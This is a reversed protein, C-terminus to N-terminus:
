HRAARRAQALSDETAAIKAAPAGTSKQIALGRALLAVAKPANGQSRYVEGLNILAVGVAPHEPGLAHEQIALARECHVAAEDYREQFYYALCLNGVARALLPHDKGLAKEQITISKKYDAIATDYDGQGVLVNALNALTQAVKPSMEGATAKYIALAHRLNKEAAQANGQHRYLNGINTLLSALLSTEGLPELIARAKHYEALAEDYQGRRDLIQGIASRTLAIQPHRGGFVDDEIALAERFHALAADTKGRERAVLGLNYLTGATIAHHDGFVRRTIALSAQYDALAQDFHGQRLHLEGRHSLLGARFQPLAHSRRGVADARRAVREAREFQTLETLTAVQDVLALAATADDGSAEANWIADDLSKRAAPWNGMDLQIAGLRYLAEGAIPLYEITRATAAADAAMAVARRYNGADAQAKADILTARVADVRSQSVLDSPPAIKRALAELNTCNDVSTLAGAAAVAHEITTANPERFIQILASLERRRSDVCAMQLDMLHESLTHKVRTATCAQTATASLAGAYGDLIPQVSRWTAAAYPVGTAVFAAEIERETAPNWDSAIRDGASHCVEAPASGHLAYITAASVAAVAVAAGAALRFRRKRRRPGSALAALLADMAPFRAEPERSLGRLLVK